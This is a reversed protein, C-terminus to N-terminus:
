IHMPGGLKNLAETLAQNVLMLSDAAALIDQSVENAHEAWRLYEEAHEKNHEIWHPILVRLKQTDNM